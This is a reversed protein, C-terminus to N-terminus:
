NDDFQLVGCLSHHLHLGVGNNQHFNGYSNGSRIAVRGLKEGGMDLIASLSKMPYGRSINFYQTIGAKKPMKM